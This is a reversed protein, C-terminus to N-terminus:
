RKPEPAVLTRIERLKAKVRAENQPGMRLLAKQGAPLAELGTDQYEYLVRPQALGIPGDIGPTALLSDIAVVLRDNFYGDPYGLERYAQQFLPYHRVYLSVLARANAGEVVRMVEDYRAANATGLSLRDGARETALLGAVPHVPRLRVALTRRPINDVTAVFNRVVGERVLVREFPTGALAHALQAFLPVDSAELVPLPSQPAPEVEAEEIPYRIAPEAADNPVPAVPAQTVVPVPLPASRHLWWWAGAGLALLVALAALVPRARSPRPTVPRSLPDAHM